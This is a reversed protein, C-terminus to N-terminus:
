LPTGRTEEVDYDTEKLFDSFLVLGKATMYLKRTKTHKYQVM